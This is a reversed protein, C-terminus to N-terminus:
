RFGMEPAVKGVSLNRLAFLEGEAVKGLPNGDYRRRLDAFEAVVRELLAESERELAEPSAARVFRETAEKDRDNVYRKIQDPNSRVKRVMGAQLRLYTALWYCALGRDDRSPHKEMVARLLSGAAPATIFYFLHGCLEGMGPDRVHDRLIEMAQYSEDGPGGRATDIVFQIAAVIASDGPNARVLDLVERTHKNVETLYREAAQRKADATPRGEFAKVYRQHAEAQEKVIADLRSKLGGAAQGSALSATALALLTAMMVRRPGM